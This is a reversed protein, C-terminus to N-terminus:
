EEVALHNSVLFAMLIMIQFYMWLGLTMRQKRTRSSFIEFPKQWIHAQRGGQEHSCVM